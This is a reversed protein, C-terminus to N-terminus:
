KTKKKSSSSSKTAVVTKKKTHMSSSSSKKIPPPPTKDRSVRRLPDTPSPRSDTSHHGHSRLGVGDSEEGSSDRQPVYSADAIFSARKDGAMYQFPDSAPSLDMRSSAVSDRLPQPGKSLSQWEAPDSAQRTALNVDSKRVYSYTFPSQEREARTRSSQRSSGSAGAGSRRRNSSLPPYGMVPELEPSPLQQPTEVEPGNTLRKPRSIPALRSIPIAVRARGQPKQREYKTRELKRQYAALEKKSLKVDTKGKAHAREIRAMAFDAYAEEESDLPPVEDDDESNQESGDDTTDDGNGRYALAKRARVGGGERDGLDVGTLRLPDSPFRKGALGPSSEDESALEEV